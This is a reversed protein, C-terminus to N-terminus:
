LDFDSMDDDPQQFVSYPSDDRLLDPDLAPRIYGHALDMLDLIVSRQGERYIADSGSGGLAYSPRYFYVQKLYEWIKQGPESVYFVDYVDKPLPEAM